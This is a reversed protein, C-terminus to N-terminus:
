SRAIESIADAVDERRSLDARVFRADLTRLIKEAAPSPESRGLVVIKGAGNDALWSALRLGLGGLGGTVLYTADGHFRIPRHSVYERNDRAIRAVYRQDRRFAIM